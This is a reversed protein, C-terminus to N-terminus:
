ESAYELLALSGGGSSVGLVLSRHQVPLGCITCGLSVHYTHDGFPHSRTVATGVRVSVPSASPMVTSTGQARAGETGLGENSKFSSFFPWLCLLFFAGLGEYTVQTTVKCRHVSKHNQATRKIHRWQKTCSQLPPPRM